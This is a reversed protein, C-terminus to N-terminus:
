LKGSEGTPDDAFAASWEAASFGSRLFPESLIAITRECESAARHMEFVFNGGPRFDWAQNRTKYGQAELEWAVWEAWQRDVETYSIFFNCEASIRPHPPM